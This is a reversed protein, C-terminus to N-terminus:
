QAARADLRQGQLRRALLWPTVLCTGLVVLVMAAYADASMMDPGLRRAADVVIMAIEARPMMSLGILIAASPGAVFSAPLGAGVLKGVMAAVLLLSGLGVASTLSSADVQMGIRIFFFPVFLAYLDEFRAETRVAKPDSSFVLGAGLAGIALSYGLWDAAAAIMFGVGAVMLMRQAPERSRRSIETVRRELFMAFALCLAIFAGLKVLLSGAVGGLTAWDLVEGDRLTPLVAFLVAMLIVASIDDLEAVDILLRGTSSQLAHAEHWTATSVGVSTASLATGAVLSPILGLRGAYHAVAFGVSASVTVDGLWVISARPLKLLLAHVNSDLGVRFLLVIVGLEAFLGFAYRAPDPVIAFTGHAWGLLVGLAIFGVVSPIRARECALRVLVASVVVAGVLLVWGAHGGELGAM